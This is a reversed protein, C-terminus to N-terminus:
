CCKLTFLTSFTKDQKLVFGDEGPKKTISHYSVADQGSAQARANVAELLTTVKNEIMILDGSDKLHFAVEKEPNFGTETGDDPKIERFKGRGFGMCLGHLQVRVKDHNCADVFICTVINKLMIGACHWSVSCDGENVLALVSGSRVTLYPPTSTTRINQM